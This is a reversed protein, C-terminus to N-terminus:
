ATEESAAGPLAGHFYFLGGEDSAVGVHGGGARASQYDGARVLIDGLFMEGELMFCDEDLAHGHDPLKAGPSMRLIMSAVEGHTGLDVADAGDVFACWAVERAAASVPVAQGETWWRAEGAPLADIDVLRCRMYLCAGERGARLEVPRAHDVIWHNFKSLCASGAGAGADVQLSGDTVLIEEAQAGDSRPVSAGAEVRLLQIRMGGAEWLVCRDIGPAVLSWARDERRITTQGRHQEVSRRVRAALAERLAVAHGRPMAVPRLDAAISAAVASLETSPGMTEFAKM